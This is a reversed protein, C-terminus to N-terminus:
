VYTYLYFCFGNKLSFKKKFIWKSIRNMERCAKRCQCKNKLNQTYNVCVTVNAELTYCLSEVLKYMMSQKGGPYGGDTVM